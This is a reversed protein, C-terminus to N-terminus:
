VGMGPSPILSAIDRGGMGAGSIREGFFPFLPFTCFLKNGTVVLQSCHLYVWFSKRESQIGSLSGKVWLYRSRSRKGSSWEQLCQVVSGPWKRHKSQKPFGRSQWEQQRAAWEERGKWEISCHVPPNKLFVDKFASPSM